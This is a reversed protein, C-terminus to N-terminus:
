EWGPGRVLGVSSGNLGSAEFYGLNGVLPMVHSARRVIPQSDLRRTDAQSVFTGDDLRRVQPVPACRRQPM